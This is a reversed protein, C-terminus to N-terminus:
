PFFFMIPELIAKFGILTRRMILGTRLCTSFDLITYNSLCNELFILIMINIYTKIKDNKIKNYASLQRYYSAIFKVM